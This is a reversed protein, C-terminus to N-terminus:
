NINIAFTLKYLQADGSINNWSFDVRGFENTNLNIGLGYNIHTSQEEKIMSSAGSVHPDLYSLGVIAFPAFEDGWLQNFRYNVNASYLHYNIKTKPYNSDNSDLTAENLWNYGLNVSWNDDVEYGLGIGFAPRAKKNQEWPTSGLDPSLYSAGAELNLTFGRYIDTSTDQAHTFSSFALLGLAAYLKLKSKQESAKRIVFVGLVLLTFTLSSGGKKTNIEAKALNPNPTVTTQSLNSISGDKGLVRLGFEYMTGNTLGAITLYLQDNPLLDPWSFWASAETEKYLLIYGAIGLGHDDPMSWSLEVQGDAGVGNLPPALIDDVPTATALNSWPGNSTGVARVFVRYDAGNNLNSLTGTLTDVGNFLQSSGTCTASNSDPHSGTGYCAEYGTISPLAPKSWKLNISQHGATADLHPTYSVQVAGTSRKNNADVRPNLYVDKTIVFGDSDLLENVGSPGADPINDILLGPTSTTGLLPTVSSPGSFTLYELFDATAPLAPADTILNPQSTITKLDSSQSLLIPQVFTYDDATFSAGNSATMLPTPNSGLGTYKVQVASGILNFTGGNDVQVPAVNGLRGTTNSWTCSSSASTDCDVEDYSLTSAILDLTGGDVILFETEVAKGLSEFISNAIRANSDNLYLSGSVSFVSSNISVDGHWDAFWGMYNEVFFSNNIILTASGSPEGGLILATYPVGAWSKSGGISVHNLELKGGREITFNSTNCNYVDRIDKFAVNNFTLSGNQRVFAASSLSKISLDNVVVEIGAADQGRTGIDLFGPAIGALLYHGNSSTPCSTDSRFM